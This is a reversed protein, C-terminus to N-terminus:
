GPLLLGIHQVSEQHVRLQALGKLRDDLDYCCNGDAQAIDSAEWHAVLPGLVTPTTIATVATVTVPQPQTALGPSAVSATGIVTTATINADGAPVTVTAFPRNAKLWTFDDFYTTGASNRGLKLVDIQGWTNTRAVDTWTV